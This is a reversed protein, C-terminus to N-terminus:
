VRVLKLGRMKIQRELQRFLEQGDLSSFKPTVINIAGPQINISSTNTNNTTNQSAPTIKEGKHVLALETRPVYPTGVAYSPTKEGAVIAQAEEYSGAHQIGYDTEITIGGEADKVKKLARVQREASSETAAAVANVKAILGDYKEKIEQIAERIAGAGKVTENVTKIEADRQKKYKGIILAIEETYVEEIMEIAKKEEKVSQKKAKVTEILADRKAKLAAVAVEEETHHMEYLRDYIPQMADAFEENNKLMKENAEKNDEATQIVWEDFTEIFNGLEDMVGKAEETKEALDGMSTALTDVGPAATEAKGGTEEAEEGAEKLKDATEGTVETLEQNAETVEKATEKYLGLKDLVWKIKDWLWGLAETIKGVVAITFDRIGGFNTTWAVALAGVALIILGIPGTSAALAKMAVSIATIAVKMKLFVAVAMLIPGGVAALVGLTAAVKVLMEVLPKHADAWEKIKKIIEIAKESFKILPPILIEGIDRGLGGASKKLDNIRDTFDAASSAAETSVVINLEKAKEMLAEIGAGGEKLMPLLQTGYKAGFIDTALAVQKTEDTMSALKTAAEKLVDMTPRLNGETDTVSIGLEEFAEKAEGTGQSADNMGRALYRLSKEVTDLDAGSQEAAYGLASLTEVSINTRKSMKDLKDGLQTTKTVIAGFAATIVGGAIAMGKGIGALKKSMAAASKEVKSQTKSLTQVLKNDKATIDIFAEGLQL